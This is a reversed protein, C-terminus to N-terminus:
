TLYMYEYLSQYPSHKHLTCELLSTTLHLYHLSHKIKNYEKVYIGINRNKNFINDLSQIAQLAKCELNHYVQEFSCQWSKEPIHIRWCPHQQTYTRAALLSNLLCETSVWGCDRRCWRYLTRSLPPWWSPSHGLWLSSAVASNSCFVLECMIGSNPRTKRDTTQTVTWTATSYTHM